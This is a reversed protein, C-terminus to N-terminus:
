DVTVLVVSSAKFVATVPQGVTLGLRKVSQETIVATIVHRGGPLEITVEANVPGEHINAISGRYRNRASIRGDEEIILLISSAKVYAVVDRGVALGLHEASEGTVIATLDLEPDLRVTVETDVIGEKIAVIPGAFQNRASTRMSMRKLVQRFGDVDFAGNDDLSGALKNLAGQYEQELTRYYAVLRRGFATLETGGGHRGGASRLVIPEPALNNMQDVAEWAGKYSFPVAKAAQSISGHKDIAELLRIRKDGLFGGMGTESLLKGMLKPETSTM